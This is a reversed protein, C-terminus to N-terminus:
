GQFFRGSINHSPLAAWENPQWLGRCISYYDCNPVRKTQIWVKQTPHSLGRSVIITRWFAMVIQLPSDCGVLDSLLITKLPCSRGLALFPVKLGSKWALLSRPNKTFLWHWWLISSSLQTFIWLKLCNLSISAQISSPCSLGWIFFFPNFLRLLVCSYNPVLLCSCHGIRKM